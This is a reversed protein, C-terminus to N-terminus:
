FAKVYAICDAEVTSWPAGVVTVMAFPTFGRLSGLDSIAHEAQEGNTRSSSAYRPLRQRSSAQHSGGRIAEDDHRATM